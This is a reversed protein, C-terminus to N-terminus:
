VAAADSEINADEHVARIRCEHGYKHHVFEHDAAIWTADKRSYRRADEIRRGWM